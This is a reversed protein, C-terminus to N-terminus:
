ATQQLAWRYLPESAGRGGFSSFVYSSANYCSVARSGTYGGDAWHAGARLRYLGGYSYGKCESDVDSSYTSSGWGSGGAFGLDECWQWLYGCCDELGYNSIMRRSKTDVHGGTYTWDKAGSIATLQNSGDAAMQFEARWPLRGKLARMQEEFLEGHWKKASTGDATIGNYESVLKEGDWSLLYISMWMDCSNIYAYGEPNTLTPRHRLDWMSAPIIDGAVYGTLPHGDISGVDVCLCHFGGIKRSTKDTYEDPVTSNYSLCFTPVNGAEPKCAFLYVNKGALNAASDFDSLQLTVDEELTYTGDDIDVMMPAKVTLYTQYTKPLYKRYYGLYDTRAITSSAASNAIAQASKPTIAITDDTGAKVEDYTALRVIGKVTTSADSVELSDATNYIRAWKEPDTPKATNDAVLSQYLHGEHLVISGLSYTMASSYTFAGNLRVDAIATGLQDCKTADPTVGFAEIANHIESGMGHFWAAGPQTAPIGLSPTGNTPYGESTLTALDPTSDVADAQFHKNDM